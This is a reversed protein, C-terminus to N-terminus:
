MFNINKNNLFYNLIILNEDYNVCAAMFPTYGRNEALNCNVGNLIFFEVFEVKKQLVSLM